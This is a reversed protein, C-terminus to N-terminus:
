AHGKKIVDPVVTVAADRLYFFSIRISLATM